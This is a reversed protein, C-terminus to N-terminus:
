RTHVATKEEEAKVIKEKADGLREDALEVRDKLTAIQQKYKLQCILWIIGAMPVALVAVATVFPVPWNWAVDWLGPDGAMVIPGMEEETVRLAPQQARAALPWAAAAGGLLTIFERRRM